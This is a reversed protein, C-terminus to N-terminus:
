KPAAKSTLIAQEEASFSNLEKTLSYNLITRILVLLFILGLDYFDLDNVTNIVDAAVMTELGAITAKAVSFRFRCYRLHPNFRSHMYDSIYNFIAVTCGLAIIAVGVTELIKQIIFFIYHLTHM